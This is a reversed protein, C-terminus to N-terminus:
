PKAAQKTQHPGLLARLRRECMLMVATGAAFLVESLSPVHGTLIAIIEAAAAVALLVFALAVLHPTHGSMRNIAPEARAFVVCSAIMVLMQLLIENM